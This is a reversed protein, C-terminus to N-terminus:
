KTKLEQGAKAEIIYSPRHRSEDLARWLYEGLIGMMVMQTGGVVLVVIMLSSWGQVPIGLLFNFFVLLAYLFGLCGFGFGLYSMARIPLYTFSTISDIVLKVKKEISWGSSGRQRVQKDYLISTQSFGMWMILAFISINKEAFQQLANVVCRDILFFDAGNEPIQRVGVVNRMLWYYLRAFCVNIWKEGSRQSRVAWIVQSGDRWKELLQPILNPPDQLDAAIVVACNGRSQNLGCAIAAHSGFNKSFRLCCVRPDNQAIEAVLNFTNDSSHDDIVIWEWHVGGPDLVQCIEKYLVGINEVENYAPTVITVLFEETSNRKIGDM